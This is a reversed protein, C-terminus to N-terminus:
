PVTTAGVHYASNPGPGILTSESGLLGGGISWSARIVPRPQVHPPRCPPKPTVVVPPCYIPRVYSYGYYRNLSEAREQAERAEEAARQAEEVQRELEAVDMAHRADRAQEVLELEYERMAASYERDVDVEPYKVRFDRWFAVQQHAPMGLFYPDALKHDRLRTGEAIRHSRQAEAWARNLEAQRAERAKRDALESETMISCRVVVNSELEVKGREYDLLLYTGARIYGRPQGLGAVVNSLTSGPGIDAALALGGSAVWALMVMWLRMLNM